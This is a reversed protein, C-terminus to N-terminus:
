CNTAVTAGDWDYFFTTMYSCQVNTYPRCTCVIYMLCIPVRQYADMSSNYEPRNPLTTSPSGAVLMSEVAQTRQTTKQLM